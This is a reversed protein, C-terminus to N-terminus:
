KEIKKITTDQILLKMQHIARKNLMKLRKSQSIEEEILHANLNELNALCVLQSVNAYDRINGKQDPNKHKALDTLSIYDETGQNFFSVDSGIVEFKKNKGM